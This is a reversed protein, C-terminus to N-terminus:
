RHIAAHSMMLSQLAHDADAREIDSGAMRSMPGHLDRM